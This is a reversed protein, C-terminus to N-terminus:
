PEPAFVLLVNGPMHFYIGYGSVAILQRGVMLPGAGGGFSGGHASAGSVTPWDQTTDVEWLVRGNESDYVRLRGDMHGALVM